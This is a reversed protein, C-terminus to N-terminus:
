VCLSNKLSGQSEAYYKNNPTTAVLEYIEGASLPYNINVIANNNGAPVPLSALLARDSNRRLQIVDALGQNPFGVSLLTTDAEARILLGFDSFGREIQNLPPGEIVLGYVPLTWLFVSLILATLGITRNTFM